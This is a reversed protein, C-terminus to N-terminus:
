GLGPPVEGACAARVYRQFGALLREQPLIRGRDIWSGAVGAQAAAVLAADQDGVEGDFAMMQEIWAEDADAGFYYDLFGRTKDVGDPYVPGISLNQRGPNINIKVNPLLLHYSGATVSGPVAAGRVPARHSLRHTAATLEYRGPGVEMVASFGPHAVPCHYCELYNEVCVKWNAALAYDFRQRRRLGGLDLGVRAVVESLDGIVADLPPGDACTNVFVFPGFTAVRVPVLGLAPLEAAIGPGCQPASRLTGDLDYTWAHYPCRLRPANGDATAVLSGRHRCVNLFGRLEGDGGRVVLVPVRSVRGTVHDGPRRLCELPGAYQWSPRFLRREEVELVRPDRYWDWSIVSRM